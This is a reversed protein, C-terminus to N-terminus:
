ARMSQACGQPTFRSTGWSAVAGVVMHSAKWVPADFWRKRPRRWSYLGCRCTSNPAKHAPAPELVRQGELWSWEFRLSDPTRCNCRAMNIGPQWPRRASRLPWLQGLADAKWERYGVVCESFMPVDQRAAASTV